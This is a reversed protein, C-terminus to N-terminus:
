SYWKFFDKENISNMNMKLKDNKILVRYFQNDKKLVQKLTNFEEKPRLYFPFNLKFNGNLSNRIYFLFM